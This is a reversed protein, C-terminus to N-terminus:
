LADHGTILKGGPSVLEGNASYLNAMAAADKVRNSIFAAIVM